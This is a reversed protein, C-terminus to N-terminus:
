EPEDTDSVDEEVDDFEVEIEVKASAPTNITGLVAYFPKGKALRCYKSWLLEMPTTAPLTGQIVSIFQDEDVNRPLQSGDVLNKMAQGHQELLDAEKSTFDGCRKFGKPFNADDYFRKTSQFSNSHGNTNADIGQKANIFSQESM